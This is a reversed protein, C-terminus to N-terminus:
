TVINVDSTIYKGNNKGAGPFLAIGGVLVNNCAKISNSIKVLNGYAQTAKQSLVSLCYTKLYNVFVEQIEM